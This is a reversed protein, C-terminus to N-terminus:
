TSTRAGLKAHETGNEIMLLSSGPKGQVKVEIQSASWVGNNRRLGFSVFDKQQGSGRLTKVVHVPLFDGSRDVFDSVMIVEIRRARFARSCMVIGHAMSRRLRFSRGTWFLHGEVMDEYSFGTGAVPDNWHEFPLAVPGQRRATGGRHHINPVSPPHIHGVHPPPHPIARRYDELRADRRGALVPQPHLFDHGRVRARHTVVAATQAPAAWAVGLARRSYRAPTAPCAAARSSVPAKRAPQANM